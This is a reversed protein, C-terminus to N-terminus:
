RCVAGVQVIKLVYKYFSFISNADLELQKM